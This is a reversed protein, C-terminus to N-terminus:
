GGPRSTPRSTPSSATSTTGARCARPGREFRRDDRGRRASAARPRRCPRVCRGSPKRRGPRRAGAPLAGGLPRGRAVLRRHGGTMSRVNTFGHGAFYSAADLSRQGLHCYFVIPAHKPWRMALEAVVETMLTAGEIRAREWEAPTRVDILRPPDGSGLAAAVDRPSVQLGRDIQAAYTIFAVVEEVDSIDHRRAVEGLTDGPQYGCSNCGGMHYRQFLARQAGPYAELVDGMTSHGTITTATM